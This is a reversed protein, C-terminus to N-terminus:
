IGGTLSASRSLGEATIEGVLRTGAMERSTKDFFVMTPPGAVNLQKMLDANAADLSSLDAEILDFGGLSRRVGDDTLVSREITRCSVCWDATFYVLTPKAGKASDLQAQLDPVSAVKAFSLEGSAAPASRSAFVALPKLPDTAGSAAGLLLIVGYVLATTGFARAAVLANIGSYRNSFALSAVGILLAAWLALDVGAPLLPTAMWIATALFGFGFLRKVNEMWAGARPLASGGLTGLIILPIGKGIGLAFLAAAGLAVDATQAIYLLAGALPATVCPGVILASSFGLVAASRKSGGMAGTRRAVWNTWSLPLQLEFLGFMSLALLAFALALVGTTIPSQLVMQLNQGSWGAVAGLLGFASALSLVYITSLIFGRRPTLRDGERALTGALIPYMPFVCPTFALLLGFLPFSAIVLLVGGRELLSPILGKDEALAFTATSADSSEAQPLPNSPASTQNDTEWQLTSVAGGAFPNTIALTVPDIVRTEPRYCIGDEQCGQYVLEIPAKGTPGVVASARDYYIEMRGFNPDDKSIGSTTEVPIEEGDAVRASIHDRYLYYGEAITWDFRLAGNSEKAVKLEFAEDVPLPGAQVTALSGLFILVALFLRM